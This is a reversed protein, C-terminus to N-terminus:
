DVTSAGGTGAILEQLQFRHRIPHMVAHELMGEISIWADWSGLYVSRAFSDGPVGKLPDRWRDLLHELYEDCKSELNM